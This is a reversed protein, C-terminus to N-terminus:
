KEKFYKNAIINTTHFNGNVEALYKVIELWMKEFKQGRQLLGVMKPINKEAKEEIDPATNWDYIDELFEIAEKTKM